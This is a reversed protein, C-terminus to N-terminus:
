QWICQETDHHVNQLSQLFKPTETGDIMEVSKKNWDRQNTEPNLANNSTITRGTEQKLIYEVLKSWLNKQDKKNKDSAILVIDAEKGPCFNGEGDRNGEGNGTKNIYALSPLHM